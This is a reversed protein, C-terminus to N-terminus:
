GVNLAASLLIHTADIVYYPLVDTAGAASTLSPAVGGAFKYFSGFALTRSGTADQNVVIAGSQGAVVNAPNALTRNGGLTVTFNNSAAFDPTLTAQDTLVTVTGRQGATFTQASALRAFASPAVGADQIVSSATDAFAVLNGIVSVGTGSVNGIATSTPEWDSNATVWALVQGNTPATAAVARGQLKAVTPNPLTGSLDGGVTGTLDDRVAVNTGNSVLSMSLGQPVTVTTGLAAGSGNSVGIKLAFAGSTANDASFQKTRGSPFLVIVDGTLAGSFVFHQNREQDAAGQSTTLTVNTNGAVSLSLEGAVASDLLDMDTDLLSGWTNQSLPDAPTPKILQLQTTFTNAM